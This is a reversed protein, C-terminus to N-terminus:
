RALEIQPGDVEEAPGWLSVLPGGIDSGLPGAAKWRLLVRRDWFRLGELGTRTRHHSGRFGGM